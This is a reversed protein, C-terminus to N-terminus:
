QERNNTKDSKAKGNACGMLKGWELNIKSIREQM